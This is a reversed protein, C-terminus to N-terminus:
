DPAALAAPPFLGLMGAGPRVLPEMLFGDTAFSSYMRVIVAATSTVAAHCLIRPATLSGFATMTSGGRGVPRHVDPLPIVDLDRVIRRGRPLVENLAEQSVTFTGWVLSPTTDFATIYVVHRGPLTDIPVRQL